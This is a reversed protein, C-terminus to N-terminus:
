LCRRLSGRGVRGKKLYNPQLCGSPEFGMRNNCNPLRNAVVADISIPLPPVPSAIGAAGTGFSPVSVTFFRILATNDESLSSITQRVRNIGELMFCNPNMSPKVFFPRILGLDPSTMFANQLYKFSLSRTLSAPQNTKIKSAECILAQM